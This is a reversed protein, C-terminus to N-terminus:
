AAQENAPRELRRADLLGHYRSRLRDAELHLERAYHLAHVAVLRWGDADRRAVSVQHTLDLVLDSEAATM